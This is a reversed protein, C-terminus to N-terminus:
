NTQLLQWMASILVNIIYIFAIKIVNDIENFLFICKVDM